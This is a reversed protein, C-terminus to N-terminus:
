LIPLLRIASTTEPIYYHRETLFTLLCSVKKYVILNVINNYHALWVTPIYLKFTKSSYKAGCMQIAVPTRPEQCSVNGCMVPQLMRTFSSARCASSSGHLVNLLAWFTTPSTFSDKLTLLFFLSSPSSSSFHWHNM